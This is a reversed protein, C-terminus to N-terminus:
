LPDAKRYGFCQELLSRICEYTRPVFRFQTSGDILKGLIATDFALYAIDADSVPRRSSEILTDAAENGKDRLYADVVNRWMMTNM